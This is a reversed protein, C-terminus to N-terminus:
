AFSGLVTTTAYGRGGFLWLERTTSVFFGVAEIRSGPVATINPNNEGKQGYVGIQEAINSGQMWTWTSDNVRYRWLDNLYGTFFTHVKNDSFYDLSLNSVWFLMAEM